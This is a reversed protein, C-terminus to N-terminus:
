DPKRDFLVRLGIAVSLDTDEPTFDNIFVEATALRYTAELDLAVNPALFYKIGARPGYVFASEDRNAFLSKSWGAGVGVYPVTNGGLDIHYEAAVGYESMKYDSDDGAIDELLVYALTGRIEFRDRLFFGYGAKLFTMDGIAGEFDPSLHGSLEWTGSQILPDAGAHRSLLACLLAVVITRFTAM